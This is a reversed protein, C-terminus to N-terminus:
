ELKKIEVFVPLKWYIYNERNKLYMYVLVGMEHSVSLSISRVMVMESKDSVADM